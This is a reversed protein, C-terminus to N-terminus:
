YRNKLDNYIKSMTNRASDTRSRKLASLLMTNDSKYVDSPARRKGKRSAEYVNAVLAKVSAGPAEPAPAAASEAAAAPAATVPGRSQVRQNYMRSVQARLAVADSDVRKQLETAKKSAQHAIQFAVNGLEPHEEALIRLKDQTDDTLEINNSVCWEIISQKMTEAKAREKDLIEKQASAKQMQLVTLETQQEKFRKQLADKDNQLELVMQCLDNVSPGAPESDAVSEASACSIIPETPAAAAAAAPAEPASTSSDAPTESSNSMIFNILKYSDSVKGLYSRHETKTTRSAKFSVINCDERRPEEVISVEVPIMVHEGNHLPVAVHQLSLGSYLKTKLGNAAYTGKFDDRDIDGVVWRTNTGENYWSKRITGVRLGEDHEIRIPLGVLSLEAKQANTFGFGRQHKETIEENNSNFINGIFYAHVM